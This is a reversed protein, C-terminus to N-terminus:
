YQKTLKAVVIYTVLAVAYAPIGASIYPFLGNYSEFTLPNLTSIYFSAGAVLAVLAPISIGKYYWYRSRPSRDYIDVISWNGRTLLYNGTYIGGYVGTLLSIISLYYNYREFVGPVSNLVLAGIAFILTAVLWPVRPFRTVTAISLPYILTSVSTMNAIAFLVLGLITIAPINVAILWDTPDFSGVIIATYASFVGAVAALIGWGWLTGHYAGAETKALRTWQGYWFAWSFGLGVNWELTLALAWNRALEPPVGFDNVVDAPPPLTFLDPRRSVIFWIFFLLVAVMFTASARMFWKLVGPGLYALFWGALVALEAAILVGWYPHVFIEPANFLEAIKQASHGFLTSAYTIWGISSGLYLAILLADNLRHGFIASTSKWQEVGFRASTLAIVSILFLPIQNGFIVTITAEKAPLYLGTFGGVLFFWAAIGFSIQVALFDWFGYPREEPLTPRETFWADVKWSQKPKSM